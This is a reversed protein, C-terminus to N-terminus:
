RAPRLSCVLGLVVPLSLALWSLGDWLGDGFLALALGVATVVGVLLPARFVQWMGRHGPRSSPASPTVAQKM